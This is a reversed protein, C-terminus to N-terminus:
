PTDAIRLRRSWDHSSSGEARKHALFRALEGAKDPRGIHAAVSSAVESGANSFDYQDVILLRKCGPQVRNRTEMASVWIGCAEEFSSDFKIM